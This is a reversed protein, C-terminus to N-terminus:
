NRAYPRLRAIEGLGDLPANIRVSLKRDDTDRATHNKRGLAFVKRVGRAFSGLGELLGDIAGQLSLFPLRKLAKRVERSRSHAQLLKWAQEDAGTHVPGAHDSLMCFTYPQTPPCPVQQWSQQAVGVQGSNGAALALMFLAAGLGFLKAARM